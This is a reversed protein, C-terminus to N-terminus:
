ICGHLKLKNITAPIDIFEFTEIIRRPLDRSDIKKLDELWLKECHDPCNLNAIVNLDNTMNFEQIKAIMTENCASCNSTFDKPIPFFEFGGMRITLGLHFTRKVIEFMSWIWPTRYYGAEALLSVLTLHQISVAELSIVGAGIGSAFEITAIADRIAESETLFPPNILIYALMKTKRGHFKKGCEVIDVTSIGKNLILERITDSKTEVGVGIEVTVGPLLTEIEDLINDTIFDVRSEIILRKIYGISNIKEFMYRRLDPSIEKENLLSGGNYLCLMPYERFDYAAIGDEFQMKLYEPPIFEGKTSGSFHGCMTCGGKDQQTWECGCGKLIVIARKIPKGDIIGVGADIHGATCFDGAAPNMRVANKLQSNIDLILQRAKNYTEIELIIHNM